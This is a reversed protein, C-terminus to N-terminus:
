VMRRRRGSQMMKKKGALVVVVIVVAVVIRAVIALKMKVRCSLMLGCSNRWQTNNNLPQKRMM